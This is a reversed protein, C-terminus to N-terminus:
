CLWYLRVAVVMGPKHPRIYVYISFYVNLVTVSDIEVDYTHRTVLRIYEDYAAYLIAM